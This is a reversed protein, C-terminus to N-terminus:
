AKTGGSDQPEHCPCNCVSKPDFVNVAACGSHNGRACPKFLKKGGPKTKTM